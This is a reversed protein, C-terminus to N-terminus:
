LENILRTMTMYNRVIKEFAFIQHWDSVPLKKLMKARKRLSSDIIM